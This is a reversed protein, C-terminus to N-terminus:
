NIKTRKLAAGAAISTGLGPIWDSSNSGTQVLAVAVGSGLRMQSSCWLGCCRRVTLGSLLALSRVRFRMTGLPIRKQQVM